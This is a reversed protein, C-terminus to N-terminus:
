PTTEAPGILRAHGAAERRQRHRDRQVSLPITPKRSGSRAPTRPRSSRPRAAEPRRSRRTCMKQDRVTARASLVLEEVPINAQGKLEAIVHSYTSQLTALSHGAMDAIEKLSMEGAHVQLSVWTHRLDYPRPGRYSKNIKGKSNALKTLSGLGVRLVARRWTNRRWNSYDSATLPDGDKARAIVLDTEECSPLSARFAAIDDALPKILDISRPPLGEVKQRPQIKGNVNVQEVIITNRGIHRWELALAEEPRLGAYALLGILVKSRRSRVQSILREIEIPPLPRVATKPAPPKEIFAYPNWAAERALIAYSIIGQCIAIAKRITPAGVGTRRLQSKHNSAVEIDIERIAIHGIYPEVHLAYVSRYSSWTNEELEELVHRPWWRTAVFEHLVIEGAFLEHLRRKRKAVLIEAKRAIADDQDLYTESRREGLHDSFRIRFTWYSEGGRTRLM